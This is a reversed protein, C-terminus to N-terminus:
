LSYAQNGGTFFGQGILDIGKKTCSEPFGSFRFVALMSINNNIIINRDSIGSFPGEEFSVFMAEAM